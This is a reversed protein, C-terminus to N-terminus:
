NLKVEQDAVSENGNLVYWVGRDVELCHCVAFIGEQSLFPSFSPSRSALFADKNPEREFDEWDVDGAGLLLGYATGGGEM